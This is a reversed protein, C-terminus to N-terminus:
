ATSDNSQRREPIGFRALIAVADRDSCGSNRERWEAIVLGFAYAEACEPSLGGEFHVLAAREDYFARWDEGSWGAGGTQLLAMVQAKHTRLLELVDQPPEADAALTLAGGNVQVSVGAKRAMKLAFAGNM